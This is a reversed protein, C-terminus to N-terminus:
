SRIVVEGKVTGHGTGSQSKMAINLEPLNMWPHQVIGTLTIREKPDKQLMKSLLDQAHHTASAPPTYDHGGSEYRRFYSFPFDKTLLLHLVVGLSFIDGSIGCYRRPDMQEPALYQTTGSTPEVLNDPGYFSSAGFDALLLRGCYDRLLNDLKIDAHCIKKEHLYSLADVAQKIISRAMSDTVGEPEDLLECLSGPPSVYSVCTNYLSLYSSVECLRNVFNLGFGCVANQSIGNVFLCTLFPYPLFFLSSSRCESSRM